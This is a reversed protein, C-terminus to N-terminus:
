RRCDACDRTMADDDKTEEHHDYSEQLRLWFQISMGVVRRLRKAEKKTIAHRADLIGLVCSEPLRAKAAVEHPTMGLEDIFDQLFEGPPFRPWQIEGM